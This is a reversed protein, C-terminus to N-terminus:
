VKKKEVKPAHTTGLEKQEDTEGVDLLSKDSGDVTYAGRSPHGEDDGLQRKKGSELAGCFALDEIFSTSESGLRNAM